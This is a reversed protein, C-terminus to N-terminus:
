PLDPGDPPPVIKVPDCNGQEASMIGGLPPLVKPSANPISGKIQGAAFRRERTEDGDIVIEYLDMFDNHSCKNHCDNDFDLDVNGLSSDFEFKRQYTSDKPDSIAMTVKDEMSFTLVIDKAVPDIIEVPAGPFLQEQVYYHRDTTQSVGIVATPVRMCVLDAQIRRRLIKLKDPGHAYDAALNFLRGADSEYPNPASGFTDSQFDIRLDRHDERLRENGSGGGKPFTFDLPHLNDSVFVINWFPERFYCAALGKVRITVTTSM